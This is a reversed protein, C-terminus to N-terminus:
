TTEQSSAWSNRWVRASSRKPAHPHATDIWKGQVLPYPPEAANTGVLTPTEVPRPTMRRFANEPTLPPGNEPRLASSNESESPVPPKKAAKIKVRTQFVPDVAAVAPDQRLLGVLEKSLPPM